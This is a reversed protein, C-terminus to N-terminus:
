IPSLKVVSKVQDVYKKPVLIDSAYRPIVRGTLFGPNYKLLSDKTPLRANRSVLRLDVPTDIRISTLVAEQSPNARDFGYKKPKSMIERYALLRPVYLMTETPLKLSWFDAKGDKALQKAVAKAVRGEGANYAALALLWDGDFQKHLDKLYDLAAKTSGIVNLRGDYDKTQKLGYRKGTAPIFQWLGAADAHSLATISFGSEVLPLLAIETPMDRDILERLILPLFPAAKSSLIELRDPRRSYSGILEQVRTKKTHPKLKLGSAFVSWPKIFQDKTPNFRSITLGPPNTSVLRSRAVLMDKPNDNRRKLDKWIPPLRMSRSYPFTTAVSQEPEESVSKPSGIRASTLKISPAPSLRSSAPKFNPLGITETVQPEPDRLGIKEETLALQTITELILKEEAHSKSQAYDLCEKFNVKRVTGTVKVRNINAEYCEVFDKRQESEKAQQKDNVVSTSSACGTLQIILFIFLGEICYQKVM